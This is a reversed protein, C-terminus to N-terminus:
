DGQFLVLVLLYPRFFVEIIGENGEAECWSLCKRGLKWSVKAVEVFFVGGVLPLRAQTLLTLFECM